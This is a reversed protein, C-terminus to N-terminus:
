NLRNSWTKSYGPSLSGDKGREYYFGSKEDFFYEKGKEPTKTKSWYDVGEKGKGDTDTFTNKYYFERAKNTFDVEATKGQETQKFAQWLKDLNEKNEKYDKSTVDANFKKRDFGTFEKPLVTGSNVFENLVYTRLDKGTNYTFDIAASKATDDSFNNGVVPVVNEIVWNKADEKTAGEKLKSNGFNNLGTGSISGATSEYDLMKDINGMVKESVNSDAPNVLTETPNTVTQEANGIKGTATTAAPQGLSVEKGANTQTGDVGQVEALAADDVKPIVTNTADAKTTANGSPTTTPPATGAPPTNITNAPATNTTSTTTAATTGDTTTTTAAPNNKEMFDAFAQASPNNTNRLTLIDAPTLTNSKMREIIGPDIQFTKGNENVIQLALKQMNENGRYNTAFKGADLLSAGAQSVGAQWASKNRATLEEANTRAQADQLGLNNLTSAYEGTLQNRMQQAQMEAQAQTEMSGVNLNQALANRVNASRTNSLNQMAANQQGLIKNEVATTDIGRGQMMTRVDSEYRNTNPAVKDYGGALMAANIGFNAAAGALATNIVNGEKGFLKDFINTKKVEPEVINDPVDAASNNSEDAVTNQVPQNPLLSPDNWNYGTTKPKPAAKANPDIVVPKPQMTPLPATVSTQGENRTLQGMVDKATNGLVNLLPPKVNVNGTPTNASEDAAMVQAPQTPLAGTPKGYIDFYPNSPLVLGDQAKIKPKLFGGNLMLADASEVPMDAPMPQEMGQQMPQQMGQEMGEQMPQKAPKSQKQQMTKKVNERAENATKVLENMRMLEGIEIEYSKKAIMDTDRTAYKDQIKKAAESFTLGKYKDGLHKM